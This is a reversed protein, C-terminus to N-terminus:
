YLHHFAELRGKAKELNSANELRLGEYKTLWNVIARYQTRKWRPKISKLETPDIGLEALLKTESDAQDSM